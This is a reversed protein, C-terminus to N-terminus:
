IAYISWTVRQNYGTAPLSGIETVHLYVVFRLGGVNHLELLYTHYLSPVFFHVKQEIELAMERCVPKTPSGQLADLFIRYTNQPSDLKERLACYRRPKDPPSASSIM